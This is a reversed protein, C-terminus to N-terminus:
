GHRLRLEGHLLHALVVRLLVAPHHQVALRVVQRLERTDVGAARLEDRVRGAHVGRLDEVGDVRLVDHVLEQLRGQRHANHIDRRHLVRVNRLGRRLMRRSLLRRGLSSSTLQDNLLEHLRGQGRHQVGEVKLGNRALGHLRLGPAVVGAATVILDGKAVVVHGELADRHARANEHVHTINVQRGGDQALLARQREVERRRGKRLQGM